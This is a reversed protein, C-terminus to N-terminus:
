TNTIVNINLGCSKVFMPNWYEKVIPKTKRYLGLLFFAKILINSDDNHHKKADIGIM